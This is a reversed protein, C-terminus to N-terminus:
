GGSSAMGVTGTGVWNVGDWVQFTACGWTDKDQMFERLGWLASGLVGWTIQHNNSNWVNLLVTNDSFEFSGGALVGDGSALLHAYVSNYADSLVPLVTPSFLTATIRLALYTQTGSVCWYTTATSARPYYLPSLTDPLARPALIRPSITRRDFTTGAVTTPANSCFQSRLSIPGATPSTLSPFPSM